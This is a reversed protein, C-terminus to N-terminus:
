KRLALKRRIVKEELSSIKADLIEISHKLDRLEESTFYIYGSSAAGFLVTAPLLVWVAASGLLAGELDDAVFYAATFALVTLGALSMTGYNRLKVSLRGDHERQIQKLDLKLGALRLRMERLGQELQALNLDKIELKRIDQIAEQVQQDRELSKFERELKSNAAFAFSQAFFSLAIAMSLIKKM